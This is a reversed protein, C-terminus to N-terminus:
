NALLLNYDIIEGTEEDVEKSLRGIVKMYGRGTTELIFEAHDASIAEIRDGAWVVGENDTM